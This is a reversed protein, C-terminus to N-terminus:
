REISKRAFKIQVLAQEDACLKKPNSRGDVPIRSEYWNKKLAM